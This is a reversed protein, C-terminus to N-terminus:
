LCCWCLNNDDEVNKSIARRRYSQSRVEAEDDAGQKRVCFVVCNKSIGYDYMTQEDKLQKGAFVLQQQPIPIDCCKQIKQKLDAVTHKPDVTVSFAPGNVVNISIEVAGGKGEGVGRTRPM